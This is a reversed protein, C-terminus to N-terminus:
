EIHGLERSFKKYASVAAREGLEFADIELDDLPELYGNKEEEVRVPSVKQRRAGAIRRVM